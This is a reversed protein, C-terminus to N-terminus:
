QPCSFHWYHNRNIGTFVHLKHGSNYHAAPCLLWDSTTRTPPLLQKMRSCQMTYRPYSMRLQYSVWQEHVLGSCLTGGDGGTTASITETWGSFVGGEDMWHMEPTSKRTTQGDYGRMTYSIVARLIHRRAIIVDRWTHTPRGPVCVCVRGTRTRQSARKRQM